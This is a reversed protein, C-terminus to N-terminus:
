TLAASRPRPSRVIANRSNPIQPRPCQGGPRHQAREVCDRADPRVQPVVRRRVPPRSFVDRGGSILEGLPAKAPRDQREGWRHGRPRRGPPLNGTHSCAKGGAPIVCYQVFNGSSANNSWAVIASGTSDFPAAPPSIRSRTEPRSRRVWRSRVRRQPSSGCWCSPASSDWGYSGVRWNRGGSSM